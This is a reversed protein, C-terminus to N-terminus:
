GDPLDSVQQRKQNQWRKRWQQANEKYQNLIHEEERLKVGAKEIQDELMQNRHRATTLDAYIRENLGTLYDLDFHYAKAQPPVKTTSFYTELHPIIKNLTEEAERQKQPDRRTWAIVDRAGKLVASIQELVPPSIVPWKEIMDEQIRKIKPALYSYRPAKSAPRAAANDREDAPDTQASRRRIQTANVSKSGDAPGAAPDDAHSRTRAKAAKPARKEVRQNRGNNTQKSLPAM